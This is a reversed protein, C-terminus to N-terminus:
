HIIIQNKQSLNENVIKNIQILEFSKVQGYFNELLYFNKIHTIERDLSIYFINNDNKDQMKLIIKKHVFILYIKINKKGKIVDYIIDNYQELKIDENDEARFIIIKKTYSFFHKNCLNIRVEFQNDILSICQSLNVKLGGGIFCFSSVNNEKLENTSIDFDYFIKMLEFIKNFKKLKADNEKIDNM